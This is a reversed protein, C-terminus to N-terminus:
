QIKKNVLNLAQLINMQSTGIFYLLPLNRTLVSLGPSCTFLKQVMPRGLLVTVGDHFSSEVSAKSPLITFIMQVWENGWILVVTVDVSQPPIFAANM